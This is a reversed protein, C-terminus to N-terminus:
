AAIAVRTRADVKLQAREFEDVESMVLRTCDSLTKLADWVRCDLWSIADEDPMIIPRRGDQGEETITVIGGDFDKSILGPLWAREGKYWRDDPNSDVYADFPVIVRQGILRTWSENIRLKDERANWFLKSNSGQMLRMGFRAEQWRRQEGSGELYCIKQGSRVIRGDYKRVADIGEARARPPVAIRMAWCM